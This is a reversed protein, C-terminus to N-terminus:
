WDRASEHRPVGVGAAYAADCRPTSSPETPEAGPRETETLLFESFVEEDHPERCPVVPVESVEDASAEDLCDGVEIAFVDAQGSSTIEKTDADREPEGRAGFVDLGACGSLVVALALAAAAAFSARAFPRTPQPM